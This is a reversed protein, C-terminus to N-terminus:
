QKILANEHSRWLNLKNKGFYFLRHSDSSGKRKTHTSRNVIMPSVINSHVFMTDLRDSCLYTPTPVRHAASLDSNAGFVEHLSDHQQVFLQPNPPIFRKVRVDIGHTGGHCTM